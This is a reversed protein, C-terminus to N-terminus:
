VENRKLLKRRVENAQNVDVVNILRQKADALLDLLENVEQGAKAVSQSEMEKATNSLLRSYSATCHPCCILGGYGGNPCPSYTPLDDSKDVASNTDVEEALNAADPHTLGVRSLEYHWKSIRRSEARARRAICYMLCDHCMLSDHPEQERIIIPPDKNLMKKNLCIQHVINKCFDCEVLPDEDDADIRTCLVCETLHAGHFRNMSPYRGGDCETALVQSDIVVPNTKGKIHVKVGQPNALIQKGNNDYPIANSTNMMDFELNGASTSMSDIEKGEHHLKLSSGSCNKKGKRGKRKKPQIQNTTQNTESVRDLDIASPTQLEQSIFNNLEDNHEYGFLMAESGAVHKDGCFDTTEITPLLPPMTANSKLLSMSSTTQKKKSAEAKMADQKAAQQLAYEHIQESITIARPEFDTVEHMDTQQLASEHAHKSITIPKREKKAADQKSAQQLAFQHIQDVTVKRRKRKESEQQSTQQEISSKKEYKLVQKKLSKRKRRRDSAPMFCLVCTLSSLICSSHNAKKLEGNASVYDESTKMKGAWNRNQSGRKFHLSIFLEPYM